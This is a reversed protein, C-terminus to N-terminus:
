SLCLSATVGRGREQKLSVYRPPSVEGQEQKLSMGLRHGRGQEQKLPCLSANVVEGQEQESPM